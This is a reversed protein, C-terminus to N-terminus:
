PRSGPGASVPEHSSILITGARYVPGIRPSGPRAHCAREYCGRGRVDLTPGSRWSRPQGIILGAWCSEEALGKPGCSARQAWVMILRLPRSCSCQAVQEAPPWYFFQAGDANPHGRSTGFREASGPSSRLVMAFHPARPRCDLVASIGAACDPCRRLFRRGSSEDARREEWRAAM